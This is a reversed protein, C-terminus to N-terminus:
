GTPVAAIDGDLEFGPTTSWCRRNGELSLHPHVEFQPHMRKRLNRSSLISLVLSIKDQLGENWTGYKRASLADSRM